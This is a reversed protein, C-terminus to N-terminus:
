NLKFTFRFITYLAVAKGAVMHPAFKWGAIADRVVEEFAPHNQLLVVETVSGQPDIVVKAVVVGEVGNREAKPPYGPDRGEIRRKRVFAVDQFTPAAPPTPAPPPRVTGSGLVGGVVGGAVGGVVGGAVGGATGEDLTDSSKEDRDESPEVLPPKDTPIVERPVERLKTEPRVESTKRVTRSKPPPPPPPSDPPHSLSSQDVFTVKVAPGLRPKTSPTHLKAVMGLLALHFAVSAVVFGRVRRSRPAHQGILSGFGYGNGDYQPEAAVSCEKTPPSASVIM